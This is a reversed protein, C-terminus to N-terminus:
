SYTIWIDGVDGDSSDPASSHIFTNRMSKASAGITTYSTTVASGSGFSAGANFTAKGADAIDLHLATPHLLPLHHSM